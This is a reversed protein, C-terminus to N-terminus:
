SILHVGIMQLTTIFKQLARAQREGASMAAKNEGVKIEFDLPEAGSHDWSINMEEVQNVFIYNHYEKVTSGIRSGIDFHLGPLVWRTGKLTMTHSTESKSALFGGRLAALASLSWANQEAGTQYLEWLHVWGLNIARSNNKWQV